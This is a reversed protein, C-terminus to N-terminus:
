NYKKLKNSASIEAPAYDVMSKTAMFEPKAIDGEVEIERSEQKKVQENKPQQDEQAGDKLFHSRHCTPKCFTWEMVHKM